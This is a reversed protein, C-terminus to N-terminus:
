KELKQGFKPGGDKFEKGRSKGFPRPLKGNKEILRVALSDQTFQATGGNHNETNGLLITTLSATTGKGM